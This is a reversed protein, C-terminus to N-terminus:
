VSCNFSLSTWHPKKFLWGIINVLSCGKFILVYTSLFYPFAFCTDHFCENLVTTFVKTDSLISKLVFFILFFHFKMILLVVWCSSIVIRFKFIGLLMAEFYMLCFTLSRLPSVSLYKILTPFKLMSRDTILLVVFYFVIFSKNIFSKFM